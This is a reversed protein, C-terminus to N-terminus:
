PVECPAPSCVSISDANAVLLVVAAVSLIGLIIM